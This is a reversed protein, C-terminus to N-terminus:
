VQPSSLIDVNNQTYEYNEVLMNRKEQSSPTSLPPPFLSSSSSSSSSSSIKAKSKKAKLKKTTREKQKRRNAKSDYSKTKLQRIALPARKKRSLSNDYRNKYGKKIYIKTM